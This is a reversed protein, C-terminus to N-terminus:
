WSKDSIIIDSLTVTINESLGEPDALLHQAIFASAVGNGVAGEYVPFWLNKEPETTM